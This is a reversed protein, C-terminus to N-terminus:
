MQNLIHNHIEVVQRYTDELSSNKIVFDVKNLMKDPIIQHKLRRKIDDENIQDRELIRAVRVEYPAEVLIIFDCMNSSSGKLLLASEYLVYESNANKAFREFDSRVEPHVFSNLLKLKVSDKFVITSLYGRNLENDKYSEVGFAEVIKSKLKESHVMLKKAEVDAIYVQVGLKEFMRLVTTKGSGMSGTIGVVKM